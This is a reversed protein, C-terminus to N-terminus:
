GGRDSAMATRRALVARRWSDWVYLALACWIFSFGVLSRAELAEGYVLVALLFQGTPALYQLFGVTALPLRRAALSFCLLPVATVVGTALLLPVHVGTTGWVPEGTSGMWLLYGAAVPVLLTTEAASGPIADVSTSKRVLGYLGFSGALVFSIWPFGDTRVSLVMVGVAATCVAIIQARSLREGLAVRGLLVSFLPNIFYGLSAHLVRGSDVAHVFVLWNVGLLTASAILSRATRLSRLASIAARANGRPLAVLWFCVCAWITRHATLGLVSVEGLQKWFVPVGGWWAYAAVGLLWGVRARASGTASDAVGKPLVRDKV